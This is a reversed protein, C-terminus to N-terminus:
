GVDAVAHLYLAIALAAEVTLCAWGRTPISARYAATRVVASPLGRSEGGILLDDVLDWRISGVLREQGTELALAHGLPPWTDSTSIRVRGEASYLRGIHPSPCDVLLLERVGFSACTRVARTLNRGVRYLVVRM